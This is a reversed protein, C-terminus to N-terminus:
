GAPPAAFALRAARPPRVSAPPRGGLGALLRFMGDASSGASSFLLTKELLDRSLSGEFGADHVALRGVRRKAEGRGNAGTKAAADADFVDLRYVKVTKSLWSKM